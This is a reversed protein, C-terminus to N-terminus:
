TYKKISNKNTNMENLNLQKLIRKRDNWNLIKGYYGEIYGKYSFSNSNKMM